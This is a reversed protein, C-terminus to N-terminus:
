LQIFNVVNDATFKLQFFRRARSEIKPPKFRYSKKKLIFFNVVYYRTMCNKYVRLIFLVFVM